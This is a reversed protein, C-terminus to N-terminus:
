EARLEEAPRHSLAVRGPWLALVNAALLIVPILLLAAALAFPPIESLPVREAIARWGLRGVALGLPIGVVLGFLGIATGQSNLITRVNGRTMGLARLVAFEHSRRRACSVLVSGLATIAILGLFAALVEPLTHVNRLNVLEDPVDSPEIDTTLPGLDSQLREIGTNSSTGAAFRVAVVRGDSLSGSPGITPILADFQRPALWLGEDFESHVDSPFLAEGVIRVRTHSVGVSVTDGIGVHLDKATAPGIAAEGRGRPARGSIVTFSIPTASAGSIPRVSFVPAGVNGVNIVDRDVVATARVGKTETVRRALQPSINRGTQASNAPTVSADWTVGALEPHHLANTIGRDITLSAVVGMVAV